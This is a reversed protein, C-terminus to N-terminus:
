QKESKCGASLVVINKDLSLTKCILTVPRDILLECELHARGIQNGVAHAIRYLVRCAYYGDGASALPMDISAGVIPGRRPRLTTACATEANAHSILQKGVLQAYLAIGPLPLICSRYIDFVLTLLCEAQVIECSEFTAAVGYVESKVFM